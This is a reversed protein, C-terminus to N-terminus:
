EQTDTDKRFEFTEQDPEQPVDPNFLLSGNPGTRMPYNATAAAPASSRFKFSVDIRDCNGAPDAVPSLEVTLTVTRKKKETPRFQCDQVAQRILLNLQGAVQGHDLEPLNELTLKKSPQM